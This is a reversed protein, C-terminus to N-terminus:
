PPGSGTSRPVLYLTGVPTPHLVHVRGRLCGLAKEVPSEEPRYNHYRWLLFAREEQCLEGAESWSLPVVQGELGPLHLRFPGVRGRGDMYLTLSHPPALFAQAVRAQATIDEWPPSHRGYHLSLLGFLLVGLAVWPRGWRPLAYLGGALGLAILGSFLFVYRTLVVNIGLSLYFWLYLAM